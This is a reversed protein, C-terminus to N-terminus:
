EGLVLNKEIKGTIKKVRNKNVKKPKQQPETFGQGQPIFLKEEYRQSEGEEKLMQAMSEIQADSMTYHHNNALKNLTNKNM